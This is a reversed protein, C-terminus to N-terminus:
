LNMKKMLKMLSVNLQSYVTEDDGDNIIDFYKIVSYGIDEFYDEM